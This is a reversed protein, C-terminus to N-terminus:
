NASDNVPKLGLKLIQALPSNHYVIHEQDTILVGEHNAKVVSQLIAIMERQQYFRIFDERYRNHLARSFM